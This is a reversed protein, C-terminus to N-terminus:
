TLPHVAGDRRRSELLEDVLSLAPPVADQVVARFRALARGRTEIILRGEDTRLVVPTGEDLGLQRRARAPIVLRGRSGIRVRYTEGDM